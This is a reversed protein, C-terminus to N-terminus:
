RSPENIKKISELLHPSEKFYADYLLDYTPYKKVHDLFYAGAGKLNGNNKDIFDLAKDMCLPVSNIYITYVIYITHICLVYM